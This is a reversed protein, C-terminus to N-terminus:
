DSPEPPILKKLKELLPLLSENITAWLVAYDVDDYGHAVRNRIGRMRHWEIDPHQAKIEDSLRYTAEGMVIFKYLVASILVPNAVFADFTSSGVFSIIEEAAQIIDLFLGENRQM